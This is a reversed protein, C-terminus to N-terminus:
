TKLLFLFIFMKLQFNDNKCGNFNATCQMPTNVTDDYYIKKKM